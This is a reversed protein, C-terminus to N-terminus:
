KWSHAWHHIAYAMKPEGFVTGDMYVPYFFPPDFIKVYPFKRIAKTMFVPGTAVNPPLGPDFYQPLQLVLERFLPHGPTAGLIGIAVRGPVEYGAFASINLLLQDISRLCEFDMDLYVGGYMYLLEYRLVDCRQAPSRAMDFISQNVLIPLNKDTWLRM